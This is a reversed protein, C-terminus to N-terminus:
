KPMPSHTPRARSTTPRITPAGNRSPRM